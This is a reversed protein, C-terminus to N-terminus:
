DDAPEAPIRSNQCFFWAAMFAAFAVGWRAGLLSRPLECGHILELFVNVLPHTSPNPLLGLLEDLLRVALRQARWRRTARHPWSVQRHACKYINNTDGRQRGLHGHSTEGLSRVFLSPLPWQDEKFCSYIRKRKKRTSSCMCDCMSGGRRVEARNTFREVTGGVACGMKSSRANRGGDGRGAAVVGLRRRRWPGDREEDASIWNFFAKKGAKARRRSKAGLGSTAGLEQAVLLDFKFGFVAIADFDFELKRRDELWDFTGFFKLVPYSGLFIGNTIAMPPALTLHRDRAQVHSRALSNIRRRSPRTSYSAGPATSPRRTARSIEGGDTKAVQVDAGAELLAECVTDPDEEQDRQLAASRRPQRQRM